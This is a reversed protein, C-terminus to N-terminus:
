IKAGPEVRRFTHIGLSVEQKKRLLNIMREIEQKLFEKGSGEGPIFKKLDFLDGNDPSM